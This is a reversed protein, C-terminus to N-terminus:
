ANHVKKIPLNQLSATFTKDLCIGKLQIDHEEQRKLIFWRLVAISLDRNNVQHFNFLNLHSCGSCIELTVTLLVSITLQFVTYYSCYIAKRHTTIINNPLSAITRTPELLAVLM